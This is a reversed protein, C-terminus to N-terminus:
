CPSDRTSATSIARTARLRRYSSTSATVSGTLTDGTALRATPRARLGLSSALRCISPWPRLSTTCIRSMAQATRFRTTSLRQCRRRPGLSPRPSVLTLRSLAPQAPVLRALAPRAPALRTLLSTATPFPSAPSPRRPPWLPKSPRQFRRRLPLRVSLKKPPPFFFFFSTHTAIAQIPPSVGVADSNLVLRDELFTQSVCPRFGMRSRKRKHM